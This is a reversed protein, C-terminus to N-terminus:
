AIGHNDGTIKIAMKQSRVVADSLANKFRKAGLQLEQWFSLEACAPPRVAEIERRQL